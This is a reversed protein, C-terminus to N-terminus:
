KKPVLKMNCKPCIGPGNSTVEPHMPCVHVIPAGGDEAGAKADHAESGQGDAPAGHEHHHHHHHHHHAHSDRAAPAALPPTTVEPTVGEPANPSSPDTSSRSIPMPAPSCAVILVVVAGLGALKTSARVTASRAFSSPSPAFLRTIDRATTM